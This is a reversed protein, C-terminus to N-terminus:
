SNDGSRVKEALDHFQGLVGAIQLFGSAPLRITERVTLRENSYYGSAGPARTIECNIELLFEQEDPM